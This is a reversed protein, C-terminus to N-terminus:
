APGLSVVTQREPAFFESAVAAIDDATLAAIAALMEDLSLYPEGYVTTSALRYMRAAPSELSLMLQGQTQQKADDLAAGALGERALRALEGRIAATAEEARAPQTGV